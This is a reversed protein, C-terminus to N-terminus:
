LREGGDVLRISATFQDEGTRPNRTVSSTFRADEFLTSANLLDILEVVGRGRGSFHVERGQMRMETLFITDPVIHSLESLVATPTASRRQELIAGLTLLNEELMARAALSDAVSAQLRAIHGKREQMHEHRAYLPAAAAVVLATILMLLLLANANLRRWWRSPVRTEGLLNLRGTEGPSAVALRSLGLGTVRELARIIPDVSARPIAAMVANAGDREVTTVDFYLKEAPFPTLRPLQFRLMDRRRRQDAPPLPLERILAQGPPIHLELRVLDAKLGGRLIPARLAGDAAVELAALDLCAIEEPRSESHSESHSQSQEEPLRRHMVLAEGDWHAVVIPSPKFFVTGLWDPMAQRLGGVWWSWAYRLDVGFLRLDSIDLRM